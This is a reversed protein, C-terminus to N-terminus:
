TTAYICTMPNQEVITSKMVPPLAVDHIIATILFQWHFKYIKLCIDICFDLTIASSCIHKKLLSIALLRASFFHWKM